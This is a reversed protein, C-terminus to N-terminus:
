GSDGGEQLWQTRTMKQSLLFELCPLLVTKGEVEFESEIVGFGILHYADYATPVQSISWFNEYRLDEQRCISVRDIRSCFGRVDGFTLEKM